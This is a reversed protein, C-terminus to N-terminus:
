RPFPKSADEETKICMHLKKSLADAQALTHRAAERQGRRKQEAAKKKLQAIQQRMKAPHCTVTAATATQAPLTMAVTGGAMIASVALAAIRRRM